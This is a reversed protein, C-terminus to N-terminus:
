GLNIFTGRIGFRDFISRLRQEHLYGITAVGHKKGKATLKLSLKAIALDSRLDSLRLNLEELPSGIGIGQGLLNLVTNHLEVLALDETGVVDAAPHDKLYLLVGNYPLSENMGREVDARTIVMRRQIAQAYADDVLAKITVDDLQSGEYGIIDCPHAELYERLKRQSALAQQEEASSAGIFDHSQLIVDIQLAAAKELGLPISREFAPFQDL